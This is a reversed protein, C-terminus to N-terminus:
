YGRAATVIPLANMSQRNACFGFSRPANPSVTANWDVPGFTYYPASGSQTTNWSTYLQAGPTTVDLQWSTIPADSHVYIEVCYGSSWDTTVQVVPHVAPPPPPPPESTEDPDTVYPSHTTPAETSSTEDLPVDTSTVVPDSSTVADTSAVDTFTEDTPYELEVDESDVSADPLGADADTEVYGFTEDWSSSTAPWESSTASAYVDSTTTDSSTASAHVDSTTTDSSTLDTDSTESVGTEDTSGPDVAIDFDIYNFNIDGTDFFVRLTHPGETLYVWPATLYEWEHWGNGPMVLPGSVDIGDIEVHLSKNALGTSVRLNLDYYGPEAVDILYDLWEGAQTWGVNCHGGIPDSTFQADVSTASCAHDGNRKPTRENFFDYDEAEVVSGFGVVAPFKEPLEPLYGQRANDTLSLVLLGDRTGLNNSVYDSASYEFTWNAAYWRDWRLSDFDDSLLLTQFPDAAGPTYDWIKIYDVYQATPVVSPDFTGAWGYINSLAPWLGLRVEMRENAPTDGNADVNFLAAYETQDTEYRVRQGNVYFAIYQPTWEIRYTNFDDFVATNLSFYAQHETRWGQSEPGPTMIQTQYDGGSPGFEFDIEEWPVQPTESGPRWLFFTGIVGPGRPARIRAEFAGFGYTSRTIYEASKYDKAHLSMPTLVAAAAVWMGFTSSRM